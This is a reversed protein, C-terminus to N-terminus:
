KVSFSSIHIMEETEQKQIVLYYLGRKLPIKANFKLQNITQNVLRIDNDFDNSKNTYIILQYPPTINTKGQLKFNILSQYKYVKGNLPESIETKEDSRVSEKILDELDAIPKFDDPNLSAIPQDVKPQNDKKTAENDSPNVVPNDDSDSSEDNGKDITPQNDGDPETIITNTKDITPATGNPIFRYVVFLLLLLAPIIILWKNKFLPKKQPQFYKDGLASLTKELEPEYDNFYNMLSRNYDLQQSLSIDQKVELEFANRESDTMKNNLYKEIREQVEM